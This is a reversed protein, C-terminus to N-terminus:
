QEILPPDDARMDVCLAHAFVRVITEPTSNNFKAHWGFGGLDSFYFPGSDLVQIGSGDGGHRPWRLDPGERRSM